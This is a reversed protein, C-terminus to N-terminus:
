ARLRGSAPRGSYNGPPYPQLAGHVRVRLARPSATRRVAIAPEGTLGLRELLIATDGALRSAFARARATDALAGLAAGFEVTIPLALDLAPKM